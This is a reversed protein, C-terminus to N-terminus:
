LGYPSKPVYTRAPNYFVKGLDRAMTEPGRVEQLTDFIAKYAHVIHRRGTVKIFLDQV